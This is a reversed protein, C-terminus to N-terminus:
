GLRRANRQISQRIILDITSNIASQSPAPLELAISANSTMVADRIHRIATDQDEGETTNALVIRAFHRGAARIAEYQAPQDGKPSHYAFLHDIDHKM